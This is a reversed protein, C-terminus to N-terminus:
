YGEKRLVSLSTSTESVLGPSTGSTQAAQHLVVRPQLRLVVLGAGAHRLLALLTLVDLGAHGAPRALEPHGAVEDETGGGRLTVLGPPFM